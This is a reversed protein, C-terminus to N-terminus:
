ALDCSIVTDVNCDPAIGHLASTGQPLNTPDLREAARVFGCTLLLASVLGLIFRTHTKM